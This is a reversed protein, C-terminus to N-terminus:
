VGVLEELRDRAAALVQQRHCHLESKEYCFVAVHQSNAIEVLRELADASDSDALRSRFADRAARAAVSDLEGYADRNDRPNGLEPLHLYAIGAENLAASLSKKSFGAKRSVANLRVDVLTKVGWGQLAKILDAPSIGEYGIGIVGSNETWMAAIRERHVAVRCRGSCFRADARGAFSDGCNVCVLLGRRRLQELRLATVYAALAEDTLGNVDM